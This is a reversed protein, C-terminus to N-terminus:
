HIRHDLTPSVPSFHTIYLEVLDRYQEAVVTVQSANFSATDLINDGGKILFSPALVSYERTDDLLEWQEDEMPRRDVNGIRTRVEVVTSNLRIGSVQITSLVKDKKETEGEIAAKVMRRVEEGRLNVSSLSDDFPLANLLDGRTVKGRPLRGRIAGTGLLAIHAKKDAWVLADAVLDGLTLEKPDRNGSPAPFEVTAKGIEEQTYEEAQKAFPKIIDLIRKNPKIGHVKSHKSVVDVSVAQGKTLKSDLTGDDNFVLDLYGVYEGWSKAQVIATHWEPDAKNKVWTPYPGKPDDASSKEGDGDEEENDDEEDSDDGDDDDRKNKTKREADSKSQALYTHSHGGIILSVGEEVREALDRDADYGLHSLVIVRHIGQRNLQARYRNVAEVPDTIKVGEGISSSTMTEPTLVGIVGVKHREVITFPQVASQLEPLARSTFNLNACIAPARVMKLYKALHRPGEDFEHNGLTIADYGFANLLQASMNGKFLSFYVSGQFEDGANFLLTNQPGGVGKGNRLHDVVSKTYASGGVCWTGSSSSSSSAFSRPDCTNGQSDFPLFHAHLDNTHILRLSHQHRSLADRNVTYPFLHKNIELAPNEQWQRWWAISGIIVCAIAMSVIMVAPLLLM